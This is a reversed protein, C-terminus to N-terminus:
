CQSLEQLAKIEAETLKCSEPHPYIRSDRISSMGTIERRYVMVASIRSSSQYFGNKQRSPAISNPDKYALKGYLTNMIGEDNLIPRFTKDVFAVNVDNKNFQKRAKALSREFLQKDNPLFSSPGIWITTEKGVNREITVKAQYNYSGYTDAPYNFTDKKQSPSMKQLSHRIKVALPKIADGSFNHGIRISILFIGAYNEIQKNMAQKLRSKLNNEENSGYRKQLTKVEIHVTRQDLIVRFDAGGTESEMNFSYGLQTLRHCWFLEGLLGVFSYPDIVRGHLDAEPKDSEKIKQRMIGLADNVIQIDDKSFDNLLHEKQLRENRTLGFLHPLREDITLNESCQNM